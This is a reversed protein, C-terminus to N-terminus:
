KKFLTCSIGYHDSPNDEQIAFKKVGLSESHFIYDIRGAPLKGAYTRGIGKSSNRFADELENYFVSYTYSM